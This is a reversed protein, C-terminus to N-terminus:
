RCRTPDATSCAFVRHVQASPGLPELVLEIRPDQAPPFAGAPVPDSVAFPTTAGDAYLRLRRDAPDLCQLFTHRSGAALPPPAGCVYSFGAQASQVNACHSAGPDDWRMEMLHYLPNDIWELHLPVLAHALATWDAASAELGLCLGAGAPDRDLPPGWRLGASGPLGAPDLPATSPAGQHLAGDAGLVEALDTWGTAVGGEARAVLNVANGVAAPDSTLVIEYVGGDSLTSSGDAYGGITPRDASPLFPGVTQGAQGSMGMPGSDGPTGEKIMRIVSGDRGGCSTSWEAPLLADVADLPPAFPSAVMWEGGPDAGTDHYHFCDASHMQM